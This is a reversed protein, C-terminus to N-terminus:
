RLRRTNDIFGAGLPAVLDIPAGDYTVMDLSIINGSVQIFSGTFHADNAIGYILIRTSHGGFAFDMEMNDALLSPTVDGTVVLLAAGAERDISLRGADNTVSGPVPQFIPYPLADGVIIRILYVFDALELPVGNVNVDTAAVQGQYNITFVSIGHIFYDRFLMADAIENVIGNLNVDGRMDPWEACIIDVAGNIFNILEVPKPDYPLGVDFCEQQAGFITPFGTRDDRISGDLVYEIIDKGVANIDTNPDRRSRYTMINDSCDEWYFRIPLYACEYTRDNTVLFDLSFLNLPGEEMLAEPCDPDSVQPRGLNIDAVAILDIMGCPKMVHCSDEFTFQYNFYEWGCKTFLDGPIAAQFNLAEVYFAIKLDFSTLRYYGGNLTVDVIVHMGQLTNHTTEIQIEYAQSDGTGGGTPQTHECGSLVVGLIMSLLFIRVGLNKYRTRM